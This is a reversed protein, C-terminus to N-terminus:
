QKGQRNHGAVIARRLVAAHGPNERPGPFRAQELPTDPIDDYV